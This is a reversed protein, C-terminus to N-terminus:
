LTTLLSSRTIAKLSIRFHINFVFPAFSYLSLLGFVRFLVAPVLLEEDVDM